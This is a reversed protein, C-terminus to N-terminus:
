HFDHSAVGSVLIGLLLPGEVKVAVTGEAKHPIGESLVFSEDMVTFCHAQFVKPSLILNFVGTDDELTM